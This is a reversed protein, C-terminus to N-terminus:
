APTRQLDRLQRYSILTAGARDVLDRLSPDTCLSAHDEVRGAWDPHSARLEDTDVAPHFYV